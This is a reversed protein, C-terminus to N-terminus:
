VGVWLFFFFLFLFRDRKLFKGANMVGFANNLAILFHTTAWLKARFAYGNVKILM